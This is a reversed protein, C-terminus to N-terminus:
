SLLKITQWVAVAASAFKGIHEAADIPRECTYSVLAHILSLFLQGHVLWTCTRCKQELSAIPGIGAM